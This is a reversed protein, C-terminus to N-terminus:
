PRITGADASSERALRRNYYWIAADLQDASRARNLNGGHSLVIELIGLSLSVSQNARGPTNAKYVIFVAATCAAGAVNLAASRNRSGRFGAYLRRVATDPSLALADDHPAFLGLSAVRTEVAGQVVHSTWYRHQLRLACRYYTCTSDQARLSSTLTCLAVLAAVCPTDKGSSVSM